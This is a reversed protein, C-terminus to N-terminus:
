IRSITGEHYWMSEGQRTDPRETRYWLGKSSGAVQM